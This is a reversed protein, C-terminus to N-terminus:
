AASRGAARGPGASFEALDVGLADALKLLVAATVPRQNSELQNVYSPSIGMAQALARQTLGREERLRRIRVGLRERGGPM